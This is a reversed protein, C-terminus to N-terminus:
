AVEEVNFLDLLGSIEVLRGRPRAKVASWLSPPGRPRVRKCASVLIGITCSDMFTVQTLDVRVTAAGLVAPSALTECTGPPPSISSVQYSWWSPGAKTVCTLQLGGTGDAQRLDGDSM